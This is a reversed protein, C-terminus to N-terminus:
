LIWLFALVLFSISMFSDPGALRFASNEGASEDTSSSSPVSSSSSTPGDETKNAKDGTTENRTGPVATDAILLNSVAAFSGLTQELADDGKSETKSEEASRRIAPLISDATFPAVQSTVALWRHTFAKYTVLDKPCKGGNACAIESFGKNKPFFFKLTSATLSETRDKWEKSGDTYNYMFAAGMALSASPASFQIRNIKTCNSSPAAGDYVAWTENNIFERAELWDWTKGAYEAFTENATFKALRAGLNFFLTNAFTSKYDYGNNFTWIQWRLGGDCVEDKVETDWRLRQEEWVAIALDLWKPQTKSPAPFGYEAATLAGLAWISQDDNGIDKTQNTPMFDDNQGVQWQIGQSVLDNYTDDGTLQWYDIYSSMFAGSQFWYYGNGKDSNTAVEPLLGPIHGSENGHYFKILSSALSESAKVIDDQNDLKLSHVPASQALFLVLGAFTQFAVM